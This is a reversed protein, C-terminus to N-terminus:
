PVEWREPDIQEGVSPPPPAEFVIFVNNNAITIAALGCDAGDDSL